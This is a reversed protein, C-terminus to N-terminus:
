KVRVEDLWDKLEGEYRFWEYRHHLAVFRCRMERELANGGEIVHLVRLDFPNGIRLESLRRGIDNARGIKVFPSCLIFYVYSKKEAVDNSITEKRTTRPGIRSENAVTRGDVRFMPSDRWRLYGPSYALREGSPLVTADAGLRAAEAQTFRAARRSM